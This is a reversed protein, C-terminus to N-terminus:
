SIILKENEFIFLRNELKELECKLQICDMRIFEEKRTRIIRMSFYAKYNIKKEKQSPIYIFSAALESYFIDSFIDSIPCHNVLADKLKKKMEASWNDLIDDIPMGNIKMPSCKRSDQINATRWYDRSVFTMTM